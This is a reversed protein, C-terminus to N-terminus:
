GIPWLEDNGYDVLVCPSEDAIILRHAAFHLDTWSAFQEANIPYVVLGQAGFM